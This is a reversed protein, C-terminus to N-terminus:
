QLPEELICAVQHGRGVERWAPAAHHCAPQALGCRPAFACGPKPPDLSPVIGPIVPLRRLPPADVHRGRAVRLLAATYPHQPHALVASAPGAEVVRGAYMVAVRQAVQAVVDMAHTILMLAMGMDAQLKRLLDIIQARVTVDLASTPEDAILLRPQRALAIAIMVRQRMGGSFQHPYDHLRRSAGPIGVKDLLDAARALAQTRPVHDCLRLGEAIQEGITYIPNLATMPEQFVMSIERGRVQGLEAPALSLLDTGRWLIRGGVVRGPPTRVLGSLSMAMVSKGSGSEGVICLAEGPAMRLDVGDVAHLWGHETRFHIKLGRIDLLATDASCSM